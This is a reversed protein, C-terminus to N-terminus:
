KAPSPAVRRPWADLWGIRGRAVDRGRAVNPGGGVGRPANKGWAKGDGALTDPVPDGGPARRLYRDTGGLDLLFSTQPLHFMFPSTRHPTVYYPQEDVAGFVVGDANALYVDDGAEDILWAHSRIAASAVSIIDAEYRDNGARDILIANVSDWGFAIGAGPAKPALGIKPFDFLLHQDDGGEDVVAGVAFHAGSAHSFYVSRYADNGGGDYLLGTGFWYGVGQSFNGAEYVDDGDVDLLAGLGGAWAHGDSIDGRRGMGAGQANSTVIKHDSHYDARQKGAKSPLPEAYYRDNGSRDALIGIGNPGGFGQGDGELLTYTDNGAADFLLGAGFYGAGQGTKSVYTDNGGEDVLIGMGLLGAGLSWRGGVYRNDADGSVYVLGCGCVASAPGSGADVDSADGIQGEQGLLLAVSLLRDPATVGLSGRVSRKPFLRVVLWPDPVSEFAADGADFAVTGWGHARIRVSFTPWGGEPRPVAELEWRARQVAHLAQLAGYHLSHEDLARAADGMTHPFGKADPTNEVLTTLASHVGERQFRSVYRLGEKIWREASDLADVLRALPRHLPKPIAALRQKLDQGLSEPDESPDAVRHRLEHFLPDESETAPEFLGMGFSRDGGIRRDTGLAVGLRYLSGPGEKPATTLSAPTLLDEVANGLTRTFEYTDQPHALLDDFFPMKFPISHPYRAWSAKPRFGIEEPLLGADKVVEAFVDPPPSPAAPADEARVPTASVALLLGLWAIRRV